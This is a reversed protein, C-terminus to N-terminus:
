LNLRVGLDILRSLAEDLSFLLILAGAIVFVQTPMQPIRGDDISVSSAQARPGNALEYTVDAL